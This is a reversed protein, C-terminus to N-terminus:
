KTLYMGVILINFFVVLLAPIWDELAANEKGNVAQM